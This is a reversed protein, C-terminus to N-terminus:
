KYYRVPINHVCGLKDLLNPVVQIKQIPRVSVLSVIEESGERTEFRQFTKSPLVYVWGPSLVSSQSRISFKKGSVSFGGVGDCIRHFLGMAIAIRVDDTAYVGCLNKVPDGSTDDAQRPELEEIGECPSGHLFFGQRRCAKLISITDM